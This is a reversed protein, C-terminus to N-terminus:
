FGVDSGKPKLSFLFDAIDSLEDTNIIPGWKPMFHPPEPGSPNMRPIDREGRSIFAILEDKTYGDAVYILSPVKNATKANSNHVGGKVDQGHCQICGGKPLGRSWAAPPKAAFRPCKFVGIRTACRSTARRVAM